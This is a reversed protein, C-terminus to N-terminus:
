EQPKLITLHVIAYHSVNEFVFAFALFNPIPLILVTIYYDTMMKGEHYLSYM